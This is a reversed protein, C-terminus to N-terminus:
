SDLLPLLEMLRLDAIRGYRFMDELGYEKQVIRRGGRPELMFDVYASVGQHNIDFNESSQLVREIASLLAQPGDGVPVNHTRLHHRGNAYLQCLCLRQRRAPYRALAVIGFLCIGRSHYGM